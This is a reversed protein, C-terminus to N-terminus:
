PFVKKLHKKSHSRQFSVKTKKLTHRNKVRDVQRLLSRLNCYFDVCKIYLLSDTEKLSRIKLPDLLTSMKSLFTRMKSFYSFCVIHRSHVEEKIGLPESAQRQRTDKFFLPM